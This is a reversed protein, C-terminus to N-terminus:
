SSSSRITAEISRREAFFASWSTASSSSSSVARRVRSPRGARSDRSGRSRSPRGARGRRSSRRGFRWSSGRRLSRLRSSARVGSVSFRALLTSPASRASRASLASPGVGLPVSPGSPAARRCRVRGSRAASRDPERSGPEARPAASAPADCRLDSRRAPRSRSRAPARAASPYRRRHPRHPRRAGRAQACARRRSEPACVGDADGPLRLRASREPDASPAARSPELPSSRVRRMTRRRHGEPGAADRFARGRLYSRILRYRMATCMVGRRPM